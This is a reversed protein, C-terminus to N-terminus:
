NGTQQLKKQIIGYLYHLEKMSKKFIIISSKYDEYNNCTNPNMGEINTTIIRERIIWYGYIVFQVKWIGYEDEGESSFRQKIAM